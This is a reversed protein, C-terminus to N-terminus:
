LKNNLSRKIRETSEDSHRKITKLLEYDTECKDIENIKEKLFTIQENLKRIMEEKIKDFNM